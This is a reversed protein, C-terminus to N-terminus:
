KEKHMGVEEKRERKKRLGGGEKPMGCILRKGMCGGIEYDIDFLFFVFPFLTLLIDAVHLYQM